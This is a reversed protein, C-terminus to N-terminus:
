IRRRHFKAARDPEDPANISALDIARRGTRLLPPIGGVACRPSRLPSSACLLMANPITAMAPRIANIIEDDPNSSDEGRWFALEDCLCAVCTYGRTTRFSTTHVEITMRNTLDVAEQREVGIMQSLMPVLRLLGKVYRMITRAQRRDAALVMITGREGIGLYPRWDRSCALFVAVLALIFSKGARRGCVLWAELAPTSPRDTRQTCETFIRHQEEDMPLGFLASLFAFWAQWTDKDRFAPGFVADDRCADLITFATM